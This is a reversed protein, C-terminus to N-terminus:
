KGAGAADGYGAELLASSYSAYDNVDSSRYFHNTYTRGARTTWTIQYFHGPVPNVPCLGTGSFAFIDTIGSIILSSNETLDKVTYTIQDGYPLDNVAVLAFEGSSKPTIMLCLPALTKKIFSYALKKGLYYDIVSGSIMTHCDSLDFAIVGSTRNSSSRYLEIQKKIQEAQITQIQRTFSSHDAEATGFVRKVTEVLIDASAEGPEAAPSFHAAFSELLEGNDEAIPWWIKKGIFLALSEPSPLSPCGVAGTYFSAESGASLGAGNDEAGCPLSSFGCLLPVSNACSSVAKSFIQGCTSSEGDVCSFAILSPHNRMVSIFYKAEAELEAENAPDETYSEQAGPLEQIVTIGAKDCADLFAEPAYGGTYRLVNCNIDSAAAVLEEIRADTEDKFLESPGTNAGSLFVKSGNVSFEVDNASHGNRNTSLTRIGIKTDFIDLQKGADLVTLSGDYLYARGYNKPCWLKPHSVEVTCDIRDGYIDGEATYVRKEDKVSARYKLHSLEHRCDDRIDIEATFRIKATDADKDIEVTRVYANKIECKRKRRVSADGGIGKLGIGSLSYVTQRLDESPFIHVVITNAGEVIGESLEFARLSHDTRLVEAGNVYVVAKGYLKEFRFCSFDYSNFESFYWVHTDKYKELSHINSETLYDKEAGLRVLECEFSGPVRASIISMGSRRIEDPTKYERGSGSSADASNTYAIEWNM